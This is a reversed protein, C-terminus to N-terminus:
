PINGIVPAASLLGNPRVGAAACDNRDTLKGALCLERDRDRKAQAGTTTAIIYEQILLQNKGMQDLREHDDEAQAYHGFQFWLFVALPALGLGGIWKFGAKKSM